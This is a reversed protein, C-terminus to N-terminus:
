AIEVLKLEEILQTGLDTRFAGMKDFPEYDWSAFGNVIAGRKSRRRGKDRGSATRNVFTPAARLRYQVHQTKRWTRIDDNSYSPPLQLPAGRHHHGRLNHESTALNIQRRSLDLFDPLKKPKRAPAAAACIVAALLFVPVSALIRGFM